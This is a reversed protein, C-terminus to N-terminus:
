SEVLLKRAAEVDREGERGGRQNGLARSVTQVTNDSMGSMAASSISATNAAIGAGPPATSTGERSKEPVLM